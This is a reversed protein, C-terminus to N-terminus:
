DIDLDSCKKKFCESMAKKTQLQFLSTDSKVADVENKCEKERCAKSRSTYDAYDPCTDATKFICLNRKITSVGDGTCKALCKKMSGTKVM